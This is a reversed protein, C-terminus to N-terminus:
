GALRNDGLDEVAIRLSSASTGSRLHVLIGLDLLGSPGADRQGLNGHGLDGHGVHGDDRPGHFRTVTFDGGAGLFSPFAGFFDKSKPVSVGVAGVCRTRLGLSTEPTPHKGGFWFFWITGLGYTLPHRLRSEIRLGREVSVEAVCILISNTICCISVLRQRESDSQAAATM